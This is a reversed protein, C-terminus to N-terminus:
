NTQIKVFQVTKESTLDYGDGKHGERQMQRQMSVNVAMVSKERLKQEMLVSVKDSKNGGLAFPSHQTVPTHM